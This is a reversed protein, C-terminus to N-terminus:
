RWGTACRPWWGSTTPSSCSPPVRDGDETEKLLRLIQAQITVDLATTPEDAILLAPRCSLEMAIMVRQRMGGSLQHPYQGAVKRADPIRVRELMGCPRRGPRPRAWAAPPAHHGRADPRRHPLGPQALDHAGPLDHLDGQRPRRADARPFRSCTQIERFRISGEVIKGPPFPDAAPHLPRDGIQRLRDRGGPRLGRGGRHRLLDRRAGPRDPRGFSLPHPSQPRQAPPGM